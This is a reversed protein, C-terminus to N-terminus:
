VHIVRVDLVTGAYQFSSLLDSDQGQKCVVDYNGLVAHFKVQQQLLEKYPQEFVHSIKYIEGGEYINDGVLLALSYPYKQHFRLMSQAVDYQPQKGTGTDGVAVFKLLSPKSASASLHKIPDAVALHQILTENHFSKGGLASLSILVLFKRRKISM